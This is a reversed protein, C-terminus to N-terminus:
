ALEDVLLRGGTIDFIYELMCERLLNSVVREQGLAALKQVLASRHRGFRQESRTQGIMVVVERMM